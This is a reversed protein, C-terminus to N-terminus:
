INLFQYYNCKYMRSIQLQMNTLIMTSFFKIDLTNHNIETSTYGM